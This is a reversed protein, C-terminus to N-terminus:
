KLGCDFSEDDLGGLLVSSSKFVSEPLLSGYGHVGDGLTVNDGAVYRTFWAGMGHDVIDKSVAGAVSEYLVITSHSDVVKKGGVGPGM